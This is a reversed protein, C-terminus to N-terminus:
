AAKLASAHRGSAWLKGDRALLAHLQASSMRAVVYCEESDRIEFAIFEATVIREITVPIAGEITTTSTM